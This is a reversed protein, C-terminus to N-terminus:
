EEKKVLLFITIFICAFGVFDMFAFAEGLWLVMIVTASVPEITALMSAKVAGCRHVGVLYITFTLVTGFLVMAAFAIICAPDYVM